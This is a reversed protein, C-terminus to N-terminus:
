RGKVVFGLDEVEQMPNSGAVFKKTAVIAEEDSLALVYRQVPHSLLTSRVAPSWAQMTVGLAKLVAPLVTPWNSAFADYSGLDSLSISTETPPPNMLTFTGAAPASRFPELLPQSSKSAEFCRKGVNMIQNLASFVDSFRKSVEDVHAQDRAKEPSSVGMFKFLSDVDRTMEEFDRGAVVATAEALVSGIFGARRRAFRTAFSSINRPTLFPPAYNASAAALSGHFRLDTATKSRRKPEECERM